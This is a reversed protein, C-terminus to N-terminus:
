GIHDNIFSEIINNSFYEIDADDSEIKVNSKKLTEAIEKCEQRLGDVEDQLDGVTEKFTNIRKLNDENIFELLSNRDTLKKNENVLEEFRTVFDKM